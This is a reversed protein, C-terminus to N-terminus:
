QIQTPRYLVSVENPTGYDIVRPRPAIAWTASRYAENARSKTQTVAIQGGSV